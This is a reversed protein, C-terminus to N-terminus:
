IAQPDRKRIGSIGISSIIGNHEAVSDYPGDIISGAYQTGIGWHPFLMEPDKAVKHPKPSRSTFDNEAQAPKWRWWRARRRNHVQGNM